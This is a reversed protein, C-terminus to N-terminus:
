RRYVREIGRVVDFRDVWAQDFGPGGYLVDREGDRATLRDDGADGFLIDRGFGGFLRDDGPGGRIVDNGAGGRISDPGAMGALNENRTTGLLADKGATGVFSGPPVVTSRSSGALPAGTGTGYGTVGLVLAGAAGASLIWRPKM